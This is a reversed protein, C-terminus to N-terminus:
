VSIRRADKLIEILHLAQFAADDLANHHVGDRRPAVVNTHMSKMTRYCRDNWFSWPTKMGCANYAAGLLANDFNAGNGWVEVDGVKPATNPRDDDSIFNAFSCLAETLLVGPRTIEMRAEDKQKLWWMVTSVDLHLGHAVCDAASVRAYFQDIIGRADFRVAGIAVIVSGPRTGLTELDLMISEAIGFVHSPTPASM